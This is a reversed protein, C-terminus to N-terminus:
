AMAVLMKRLSEAYLTDADDSPEVGNELSGPLRYNMRTLKTVGDVLRAVETGFSAEIETFAVECDEMVDHLLAAIITHADLNLEALFLAAELPHAIYPEGSM